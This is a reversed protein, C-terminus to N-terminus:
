RCGLVWRAMGIFLVEVLFLFFLCFNFRLRDGDCGNGIGSLLVRLACM